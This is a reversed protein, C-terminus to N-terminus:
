RVGAVAPVLAKMAERNKRDIVKETERAVAKSLKEENMGPSAKVNIEVNTQPANTVAGPRGAVKAVTPGSITRPQETALAQIGKAEPGSLKEMAVTALTQTAKVRSLARDETEAEPRQEEGVNVDVAKATKTAGGFL